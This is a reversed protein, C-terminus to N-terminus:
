LSRAIGDAVMVQGLALGGDGPPVRHHLHVQFEPSLEALISEALRASHFCDGSLAVPLRGFQRSAARVLDASVTAITNHLRAAIKAASEGGVSEFVADRVAPRLDVQWPLAARCIDYRYRGREAPDAIANLELANQGQYAAVARDLLLAGFGDFYRGLAHSAAPAVRLRVSRRGAEIEAPPVRGFVPFSDLPADGGFADDILALAVRWPERGAADGGPVLLTRYTAVRTFAAYTALLLESGWSTGDTGRGGRDYVLGLVQGDLGNEAMLSALHAHHHQVAITQVGRARARAHRTSLDDPDLDHAIIDPRIDLFQELRDISETYARYVDANDLDGIHPSLVAEAGRALCFTNKLLSGVGLIPRHLPQSLRVPQPAYGRARRLVLPQGAIVRAISDDCRTIIERDHLLFVDAVGHLRELADNNRYAVPQGPLNGSTMVLPSGVRDLLLQHLPSSALQLGIVPSRPAVSAALNAEARRAALVIPREASTLLTEEAASLLALTRAEDLSGAMVAFPREDRRKAVRLRRVAVESTADCALQFGGVGKIAVTLGEAITRAALAIIDNTELREGDGTRLEMSPGCIPCANPQAHFRRGGASDYEAQCAPCMRFAAMSTNPRDYPIASAITFRPGCNTCSTFPYHFRRNSADRLEALCDPCTALDSPVALAGEAPGVASEPARDLAPSMPRLGSARAMGRAELRQASAAARQQDFHFNRVHL